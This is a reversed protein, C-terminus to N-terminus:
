LFVWALVQVQSGAELFTLLYSTKDLNHVQSVVHPGESLGHVYLQLSNTQQQKCRVELYLLLKIRQQCRLM